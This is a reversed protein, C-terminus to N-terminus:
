FKALYIHIPVNEIVTIFYELSPLKLFFLESLEHNQLNFPMTSAYSSEPSARKTSPLGIALTIDQHSLFSTIVKCLAGHRSPEM